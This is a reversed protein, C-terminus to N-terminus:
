AQKLIKIEKPFDEIIEWEKPIFKEAMRLSFYYRSKTVPILKLANSLKQKNFLPIIGDRFIKAITNSRKDWDQATSSKPIENYIRKNNEDIWWTKVEFYPDSVPQYVIRVFIYNEFIDQYRWIGTGIQTYNYSDEPNLLEAMLAYSEFLNEDTFNDFQLGKKSKSLINEILTM